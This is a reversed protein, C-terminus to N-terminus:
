KDYGLDRLTSSVYSQLWIYGCVLGTIIGAGYILVWHPIHMEAFM